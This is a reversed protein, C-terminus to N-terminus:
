MSQSCSRVVCHCLDREGLVFDCFVSAHILIIVHDDCPPLPSMLLYGGVQTVNLTVESSDPLKVWVGSAYGTYPCM